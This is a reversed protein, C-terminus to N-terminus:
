REEGTLIELTRRIAQAQAAGFDAYLARLFAQQQEPRGDTLLGAPVCGALTRAAQEVRPDDPAADALADLLAYAERARAVADPADLAGRLASLLRERERPPAGTDILALIERDKAAMPSDDAPLAALLEALEPSVPGGAPLEGADPLARLRQRRERIAAEQRALDEDLESLVEALDRGADDALVDAHRQRLGFIRAAM